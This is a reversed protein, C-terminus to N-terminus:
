LEDGAMGVIVIHVSRRNPPATCHWQSSKIKVLEADTADAKVSPDVRLYLGNVTHGEEELLRLMFGHPERSLRRLDEPSLDLDAVEFTLTEEEARKRLRGAMTGEETIESLPVTCRVTLYTM